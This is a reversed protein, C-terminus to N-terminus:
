LPEPQGADIRVSSVRMRLAPQDALHLAIGGADFRAEFKHAPNTAVYSLGPTTTPDIRVRYRADQQQLTHMVSPLLGPPPTAGPERLPSADPALLCLAALVCASIASRM